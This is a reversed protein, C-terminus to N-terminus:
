NIELLSSKVNENVLEEIKENKKAVAKLVKLVFHQSDILNYKL